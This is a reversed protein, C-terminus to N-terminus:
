SLSLEAGLLEMHKWFEPYSKNVAEAGGIQTAGQAGLAAVACAMAIRHDGHAHVRAGKVKKGGEIIM